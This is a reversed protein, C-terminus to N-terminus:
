YIFLVQRVLIHFYPEHSQPSLCLDKQQLKRENALFAFLIINSFTKPPVSVKSFSQFDSEDTNYKRAMYVGEMYGFLGLFKEFDNNKLCSILVNWNLTAKFHFARNIIFIFYESFRYSNKVNELYFSSKIKDTQLPIV